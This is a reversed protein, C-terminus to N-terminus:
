RLMGAPAPGVRDQEEAARRLESCGRPHPASEHRLDYVDQSM